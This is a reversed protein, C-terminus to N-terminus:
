KSGLRHAYIICSYPAQLPVNRRGAAHQVVITSTGISQPVTSASGAGDSFRPTPLAEVRVLPSPSEVIAVHVHMMSAAWGTAGVPVLVAQVAEVTLNNMSSHTQRTHTQQLRIAVHQIHKTHSQHENCWYSALLSPSPPYTVNKMRRKWTSWLNVNEM